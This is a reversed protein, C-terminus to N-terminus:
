FVPLDLFVPIDEIVQNNEVKWALIEIGDDPIYRAKVAVAMEDKITVTYSIYIGNEDTIIKADYEALHREIDESQIGEQLFTDVQALIEEAKNDAAYYQTLTEATKESLKYDRHASMFSISAFITLCLLIFAMLLSPGGIPLGVAKLEKKM